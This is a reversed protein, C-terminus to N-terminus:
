DLVHAKSPVQEWNVPYGAGHSCFVSDPTNALDATPNYHANAIIEKANHCEQYGMVTLELQGQGHTYARVIQAYKRMETVPATGTIVTTSSNSNDSNLKFTGAMQQIDNIARGVHKPDITLRFHYWPELLKCQGTQKLMMLGQRVARYTAERFDGGVSHVISGRGNILTIKTDTLPAGILVGRHEKNHLSTMIQEQWNHSLIDVSCDSAFKIGGGSKGPELLLHVEAYHRLPEFHGIGIVKSTITEKYLINGQNFEINIGYRQRLLQQIIELQVEGIIQLHIEQLPDSWQVNLHPEEDELERLASLCKHPDVGNLKVAYSLVPQIENLPQDRAKGLGQGPFTSTLGTIAGVDGAPITQQVTFKAGNYVRLQNAKEGPLIEAKAKLTGGLVRIWTLREGKNDHSIKFVRAQFNPSFPAEITWKSLGAIFDDIGTLKLATGSYIPFIKREAILQRITKDKLNGSDLYSNLVNDDAMAINELTDTTLPETFPLCASSFESQLAQIVKLPNAGVVDTKNIFIFTPVQYKKLLRWLTRTSGQIGDTASIVLIAYDLVPLVQETQGAFDVHGPTDLLTLALDNYTVSAQHSSITIGRQKELTDPDLFSDGNDVRGFQRQTGGRYLLAESLTTKGADVHAIIGAVIRKM